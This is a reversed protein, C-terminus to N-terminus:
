KKCKFVSLSQYVYTEDREYVEYFKFPSQKLYTKALAVPDKTLHYPTVVSDIDSTFEKWKPYKALRIWIEVCPNHAQVWHLTDGGPKLMKYM